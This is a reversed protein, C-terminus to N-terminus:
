FIHCLLKLCCILTLTFHIATFCFQFTQWITLQLDQNCRHYGGGECGPYWAVETIVDINGADQNLYKCYVLRAEKCEPYLINVSLFFCLNSPSRWPRFTVNMQSSQPVLQTWWTWMEAAVEWWCSGTSVNSVTCISGASSCPCAHYWPQIECSVAFVLSSLTGYWQKRMLSFSWFPRVRESDTFCWPPM